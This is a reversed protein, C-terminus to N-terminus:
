DHRNKGARLADVFSRDVLTGYDPEQAIIGLEKMRAGLATLRLMFADDMDWALEMNEASAQLLKRDVGFLSAASDLWLKRDATLAETVAKHAAVMRMATDPHERIFDARMLMGSNITGISDGYYPYALIRGYGQMVAQTPFPEGSLFADVNGKALATGMDFFDIRMLTVDRDPDIGERHLVERLLIEHMTGPVYAIRKGRLDAATRVPGDKATVLASCRNGLAAVLRVPEGRSAAQIALALTTGTMDLSQALLAAKQDAPNTFPRVQVKLGPNAPLAYEEYLFPQITQATKWSGVRWTEAACAVNEVGCMAIGAIGLGALVLRVSRLAAGTVINKWATM